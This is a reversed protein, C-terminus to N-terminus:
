KRQVEKYYEMLKEVERKHIMQTKQSFNVVEIEAERLYKTLTKKDVGLTDILEYLHIYEGMPDHVSTGPTSQREPDPNMNNENFSHMGLLKRATNNHGEQKFLLKCAPDKKLEFLGKLIEKRVENNVLEESLHQIHDDADEFTQDAKFPSKDVSLCLKGFLWGAELSDLALFADPLNSESCEAIVKYQRQLESEIKQLNEKHVMRHQLMYEAGKATLYVGPFEPKKRNLKQVFLKEYGIIRDKILHGVSLELELFCATLENFVINMCQTELVKNPDHPAVSRRSYAERLLSIIGERAEIIQYSLSTPPLEELGSRITRVLRYCEYKTYIRYLRTLVHADDDISKTTNYLGPLDDGEVFSEPKVADTQLFKSRNNLYVDLGEPYDWFPEFAEKGEREMKQHMIEFRMGGFLIEDLESLISKDTNM